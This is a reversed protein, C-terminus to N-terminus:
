RGATMPGFTLLGGGGPGSDPVGTLVALVVLGAAVLVPGPGTTRRAPQQIAMGCIVFAAMTTAAVIWRGWDSGAVALLAAAPILSALVALSRRMATRDTLWAAAVLWGLSVGAVLAWNRWVGTEIVQRAVLALGEQPTLGSAFLSMPIAGGLWGQTQQDVAAWQAGADARPSLAVALGAVLVPLLLAAGTRRDLLRVCALWALAACIALLTVGEHVLAAAGFAVGFVAIGRWGAVRVPVLLVFMLLLAYLLYEKRASFVLVADPLPQWLGQWMGMLLGGPVFWWVLPTWDRTSAIARHVLVGFLVPVVVSLVLVLVSVARSQPGPLASLLTGGLGRRVPGTTYSILWEGASYAWVSNNTWTSRVVRLGPVMALFAILVNTVILALRPPGVGVGPDERVTVPM